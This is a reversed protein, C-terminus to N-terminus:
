RDASPQRPGRDLARLANRMLRDRTDADPISEFPFGLVVAGPSVVAAAISNEAYRLAVTGLPSAPVLGDPAEVRYLDRRYEVNYRATANLRLLQPSSAVLAGTVAAHETRWQVGLVDSLFQEAERDGAADSGLYAGSAFLRGGAEAFARLSDRFAPPWVAFEPGRLTDPSLTTKEEGMALVVLPADLRTDGNMVAEDSTSVFSRGAALLSAGHVAVFDRSNGLFVTTELDANSAGHGPQDDDVWPETVDFEYQDGVTHVDLGDPVGEDENRDFGVVDGESVFAPPAIRDFGSVVLVPVSADRGLGVALAESAESEGGANLASVRVSLVQGVPPPAIAIETGDVPTGNDWGADGLRRYLVYRLPRADPELPDEQARWQVRVVRRAANGEFSAALHTPPLPQPVFTSSDQAALFRGIAKYLTRSADHRFRPDLAFRMDMPNHHSLLELLLSPMNPRTAESYGRDWTDRYTWDAKWGARLDGTIEDRTIRALERNLRRSRGDPFIGTTDMGRTNIILLTGIVSGDFVRGADTHFSFALDVPVGLGPVNRDGTPGFPAGRVYNAWEGRSQYDDKYDDLEGSVNYVTEAPFGAFQEYYRAAEVFRPRGSTEGNREIEGMGGGFRVGDASVIRGPTASANTLTVSARTADQGEPFRFTGLYTWTSGGMTQNVAFHTAGGAHRVTYQADEVRDPGHRFSVYVAYEGAETLDPIWVAEASATRDAVAQRATGLTFPNTTDRYPPRHAFGEGDRTWRGREAYRGDDRGDNDVISQLPQPDRERPMLVVAGARELMPALHRHIFAYPLLDEITTFIRARQWEWRDLTPEYYWGHSAWVALHRDQLGATIRGHADLRRVLPAPGDSAEAQPRRSMEPSALTGLPIPGGDAAVVIGVAAGPAAERVAEEIQARFTAVEEERWVLTATEASLHVGVTDAELTLDQLQVSPPLSLPCGTRACRTLLDDLADTAIAEPSVTVSAPPTPRVVAEPPPAPPAPPDPRTSTCAALTLLAALPLLRAM